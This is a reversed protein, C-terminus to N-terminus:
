AEVKPCEPLERIALLYRAACEHDRESWHAIAEPVTFWRCGSAIRWGDAHAVAVPRHGRPDAMNLCYVNAAELLDAGWLDAGWLNAGALDAGRLNAGSLNADSLYAGRLNVGRLNAGRLNAGTLDARRLNAGILNARNGNPEGRRWACHSDLIKQLQHQDYTQM